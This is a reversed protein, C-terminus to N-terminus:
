RAAGSAGPISHWCIPAPTQVRADVLTRLRRARERQKGVPCTSGPISTRRAPHRAHRQMKLDVRATARQLLAHAHIRQHRLAVPGHRALDDSWRDPKNGYMRARVALPREDRLCPKSKARSSPPLARRGSPRSGPTCSSTGARSTSYRWRGASLWELLQDRDPAALIATSRTATRRNASRASARAGAPAPRPQRAGGHRQRRAVRM